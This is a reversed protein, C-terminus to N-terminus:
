MTGTARGSELRLLEAQILSEIDTLSISEAVEHAKGSGVVIAPPRMIGYRLMEVVDDVPLVRADIKMAEVCRQVNRLLKACEPCGLTM